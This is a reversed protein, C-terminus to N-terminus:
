PPPVGAFRVKSAGLTLLADELKARDFAPDAVDVGVWFRDQTASEFGEAAFIPSYLEPLGSLAFLVCIGGVAAALVGMEFTIPVFMPVSHPPRGGVDLPYDYANCWWQIAYAASAGALAFPLVLWNIPSRDHGLADEAERVPYPTFADLDRYGLRRLEVIARLLEEPAVFEALIGRRM